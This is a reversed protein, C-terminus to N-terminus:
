LLLDHFVTVFSHVKEFNPASPRIYDFHFAMSAASSDEARPAQLPHMWVYDTEILLLWPAQMFVHHSFLALQMSGKWYYVFIRAMSAASSGEARPAQLPHMWVYDTEILLLRPAQVFVHSVLVQQLRVSQQEAATM